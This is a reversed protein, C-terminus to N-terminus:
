VANSRLVATRGPRSMGAAKGFVSKFCYPRNTEPTIKDSFPAARTSNNPAKRASVPM